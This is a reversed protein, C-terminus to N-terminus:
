SRKESQTSLTTLITDLTELQGASLVAFYRDNYARAVASADRATALGLDTLTLSRVRADTPHAARVLLMRRELGRVIQSTTNADMGLRAAVDAQSLLPEEHRARRYLEMMVLFQPVTLAHSRLAETAETRWTQAAHMLLHGFGGGDSTAM